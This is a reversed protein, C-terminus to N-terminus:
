SFYAAALLAPASAQCNGVVVYLTSCPLEVRYVASTSSARFAILNRSANLDDCINRSFTFKGDNERM